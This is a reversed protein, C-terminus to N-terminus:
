SSGQSERGGMYVYCNGLSYRVQNMDFASYEKNIYVNHVRMQISIHMYMLVVVVQQIFVNSVM